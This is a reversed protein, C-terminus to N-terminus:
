DERGQGDTAHGNGKKFPIVPIGPREPERLRAWAPVRANEMKACHKVIAERDREKHPEIEVHMRGDRGMWRKMFLWAYPLERGQEECPSKDALDGENFTFLWTSPARGTDDRYAAWKAFEDKYRELFYAPIGRIQSM